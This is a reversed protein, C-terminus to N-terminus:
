NGKKIYGTSHGNNMVGSEANKLFTKVWQIFQQGLGFSELGVFIFTHEISDFVKEFDVSFLIGVGDHEATHELIHTPHFEGIYSNLIRVSYAAM